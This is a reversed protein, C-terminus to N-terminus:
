GCSGNELLMVKPIDLLNHGIKIIFLSYTIFIICYYQVVLQLTKISFLKSGYPPGLPLSPFTKFKKCM